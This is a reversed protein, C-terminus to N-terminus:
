ILSISGLGKKTVIGLGKKAMVGPDDRAGGRHAARCGAGLHPRRHLGLGATPKPSFVLRVDFIMCMM